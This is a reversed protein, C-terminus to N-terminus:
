LDELSDAAYDWEGISDVDILAGNTNIADFSLISIMYSPMQTEEDDDMYEADFALTILREATNDNIFERNRRVTEMLNEIFDQPSTAICSLFDKHISDVVFQEAQAYSSAIWSMAVANGNVGYSPNLKTILVNNNTNM